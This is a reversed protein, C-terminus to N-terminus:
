SLTVDYEMDDFAMQAVAGVINPLVAKIITPKVETVERFSLIPFAHKKVPVAKLAIGLVNGVSYDVDYTVTKGTAKTATYRITCNIAPALIGNETAAYCGDAISKLDFSVVKSNPYKSSITPQVLPGGALIYPAFIANNPSSAQITITKPIPAGLGYGM